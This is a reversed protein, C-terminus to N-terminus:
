LSSTLVLGPWSSTELGNRKKRTAGEIERSINPRQMAM